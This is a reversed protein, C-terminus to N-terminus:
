ELPKGRVARVYKGDQPRDKGFKVTGEQYESKSGCWSHGIYRSPLTNPFYELNIKAEDGKKNVRLVALEDISPLRWDSFGGYKEENLKAIFEESAANYSYKAANSHITDDVTKVEWYMGSKSDLVMAWAAADDGLENGQVDLKKFREGAGASGTTVALAVVVLMMRIMWKM